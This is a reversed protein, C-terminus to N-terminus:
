YSTYTRATDTHRNFCIVTCDPDYYSYFFLLEVDNIIVFLTVDLRLAFLVIRRAYAYSM